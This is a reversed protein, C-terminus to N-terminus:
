SFSPKDATRYDRLVFFLLVTTFALLTGELAATPIAQVLLVTGADVLFHISVALLFFFGKRGKVARYVLWSLSIHLMIASIREVGAALFDAPSLTWLQSIQTYTMAATEEDLVALMSDLGGANIMMSMVLNSIYTMGILLIAEIGGHGIGYMIANRKELNKKMCFRMALFRGTEEFIGAALGGYVAYLWINKTLLEGTAAFVVTHFIQELVLASLFFTGCGIFFASLNAKTRIKWFICLGIPLLISIGLTICMAAINAGPVANVTNM